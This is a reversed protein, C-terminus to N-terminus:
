SDVAYANMMTIQSIACGGVFETCQAATPDNWLQQLKRPQMCCSLVAQEPNLEIRCIKM